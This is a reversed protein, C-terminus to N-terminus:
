KVGVMWRMKGERSEYMRLMMRVREVQREADLALDYEERWADLSQELDWSGDSSYWGEVGDEMDEGEPNDMGGMDESKKGGQNGQSKGDHDRLDDVRVEDDHDQLSDELQKEDELSSLYASLAEFFMGADEVKAKTSEELNSDDSSSYPSKPDNSSSPHLVLQSSSTLDSPLKAFDLPRDVVTIGMDTMPLAQGMQILCCVMALTLKWIM